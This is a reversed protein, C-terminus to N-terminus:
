VVMERVAMWPNPVAEGLDHVYSLSLSVGISKGKTLTLTVNDVYGIRQREFLLVTKGVDIDPRNVLRFSGTTSSASKMGLLHAAVANHVKERVANNAETGELAQLFIKSPEEVRIGYRAQLRQDEAKGTHGTADVVASQGLETGYGFPATVFTVIQDESEVIGWGQVSEDVLIYNYSHGRVPMMDPAPSFDYTDRGEPLFTMDVPTKGLYSPEDTGRSQNPNVRDQCAISAPLNNFKPMQFVVNGNPDAFWDCWLLEAAHRCIADARIKTTQLIDFTQRTAFQYGAAQQAQALYSDICLQATLDELTWSSQIGDPAEVWDRSGSAPDLRYQRRVPSLGYYDPISKPTGDGLRWFNHRFWFNNKDAMFKALKAEDSPSNQVTAASNNAQTGREKQYRAQADPYCYSDQITKTVLYVIQSVSKKAFWNASETMADKGIRTLLSPQLLSWLPAAMVIESVSFMRLIDRCSFTLTPEGGVDFNDTISSIVGSFGAYWRDDEGQIDVFIRQMTCFGTETERARFFSGVVENAANTGIGCWWRKKFYAECQYEFDGRQRETNLPLNRGLFDQTLQQYYQQIMDGTDPDDFKAKPDSTSWATRPKGVRLYKDRPNPLTLTLTGEGVRSRAIQATSWDLVEVLAGGDDSVFDNLYQDFNLKQVWVRINPHYGEQQSRLGWRFYKVGAYESM